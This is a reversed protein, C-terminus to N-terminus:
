AGDIMKTSTAVIATQYCVVNRNVIKVMNVWRKFLVVHALYHLARPFYQQLFEDLADHHAGVTV